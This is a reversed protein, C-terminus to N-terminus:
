DNGGRDSGGQTHERDGSNEAPSGGEKLASAPSPDFRGDCTNRFAHQLDKDDDLAHRAGEVQTELLRHLEGCVPIPLTAPASVVAKDHATTSAIVPPPVSAPPLSPTEHETTTTLSGDEFRTSSALSSAPRLGHRRSRERPAEPVAPPPPSATMAEPSVAAPAAAVPPEAAALAALSLKLESRFEETLETGRPDEPDVAKVEQVEVLRRAAFSAHLAPQKSSPALALRVREGERKLPYLASTTSVNRVDAYTTAGGVLVAVALAVSAGRLAIRWGGVPARASSLRVEPFRTRYASLYLGRTRDRFARRSRYLRRLRKKITRQFLSNLM